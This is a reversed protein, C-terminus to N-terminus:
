VDSVAWSVASWPSDPLELLKMWNITGSVYDPMALYYEHPRSGKLTETITTGM